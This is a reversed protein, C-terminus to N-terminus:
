AQVYKDLTFTGFTGLGESFSGLILMVVPCVTLFGVIAILGPTLATRTKQM